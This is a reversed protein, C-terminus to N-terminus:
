GSHRQRGPQFEFWAGQLEARPLPVDIENNWWVKLQVDDCEAIVDEVLRRRFVYQSDDGQIPTTRNELLVTGDGTILEYSWGAHDDDDDVEGLLHLYYDLMLRRLTCRNIPSALQLLRSEWRAPISVYNGFTLGNFDTGRVDADAAEPFLIYQADYIRQDCMAVTRRAVRMVRTPRDTPTTFVRATFEWWSDTLRHYIGSFVVDTNGDEEWTDQAIVLSIHGDALRHAEVRGGDIGNDGVLRIAEGTVDTTLRNEVVNVLQSGDYFMFGQDSMFYVGDDAEVISRPDLCGIGTLVRRVVFNAPSTGYLVHVSRRKFICLNPGLKALGMGVDSEDESEVILQNVLGSVPDEWENANGTSPGGDISWYLASNNIGTLDGPQTGGLVFLRNLHGRLDICGRPGNTMGAWTDFSVAFQAHVVQSLPLWGGHEDVNFLSGYSIAYFDDGIQTSRPGPIEEITTGALALAASDHETVTDDEDIQWLYVLAEALDAAAAAKRYTAVWPERTGGAIDRASLIMTNNAHHVGIVDKYLEDDETICTTIPGRMVLKGARATLFNRLVPAQDRNITLPSSDTNLGGTAPQLFEAKLQTM